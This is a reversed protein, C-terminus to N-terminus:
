TGRLWFFTAIGAATMLLSGFLHAFISGLAWAYAGREMLGVIEVSFTSFTSLGGCFGTILLLRLEPSLGSIQTFLAVGLGAIYAAVWNSVLTGPPLSPLLGNLKASLAWRLLGGAMSGVAVAVAAKWWVM